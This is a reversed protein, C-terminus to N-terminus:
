MKVERPRAQCNHALIVTDKEEKLLMIEEVPREQLFERDECPFGYHIDTKM